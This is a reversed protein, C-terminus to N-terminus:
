RFDFRRYLNSPDRPSPQRVNLAPSGFRAVVRSTRLCAPEVGDIMSVDDSESGTYKRGEEQRRRFM